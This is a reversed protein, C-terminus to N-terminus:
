TRRILPAWGHEEWYFLPLTADPVGHQFGISLGLKGFGQWDNAKQGGTDPIGARKSALEVMERGPAAHGDPWAFSKSDLVNYRMSLVHAPSFIASVGSTELAAMGQSTAFVPLYIATFPQIAQLQAFSLPTGSISEQRAWTALFQRGTGLFDDLFLVPRPGKAVLEELVKEPPLIRAEPFELVQRAKRAFALGSDTPRPEEGTPYTILASELFDVWDVTAEQFTSSQKVIQKSLDTLGGVLMANTFQDSFFLFQSLLHIAYPLEPAEFNDLWREPFLM